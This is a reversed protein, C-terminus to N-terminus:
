SRQAQYRHETLKRVETRLAPITKWQDRVHNSFWDTPPKQHTFGLIALLFGEMWVHLQDTAVSLAEQLVGRMIGGHTLHNRIADLGDGSEAVLPWPGRVNPPFTTMLADIKRGIKRLNPFWTLALGELATFMRLFSASRTSEVFPHISFIALRVADQQQETLASWRISAVSFFEELQSKGVLPGTAREETTSRQRNLPDIWEELICTNTTAVMVYVVTLHRAALTLLLCADRGLLRLDEVQHSSIPQDKKIKLVLTPYSGAILRGHQGKHWNWHRQLELQVPKGSLLMHLTRVVSTKVKRNGLYDVHPISSPNGYNLDSLRFLVSTYSDNPCSEGEDKQSYERIFRLCGIHGVSIKTSHVRLAPMTTVSRIHLDNAEIRTNFSPDIESVLRPPELASGSKDIRSSPPPTSGTVESGTVDIRADEHCDLPLWLRVSCLPSIRGDIVLRADFAHDPEVEHHAHIRSSSM